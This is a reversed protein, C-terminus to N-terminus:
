GAMRKLSKEFKTVYSLEKKSLGGDHPDADLMDFMTPASAKVSSLLKRYKEVQPDDEGGQPVRNVNDLLKLLGQTEKWTVKGDKDKDLAQHLVDGLPQRHNPPQQALVVHCLTTASFLVVLFLSLKHRLAMM